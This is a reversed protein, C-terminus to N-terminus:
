HPLQPGTTIQLGERSDARAMVSVCQLKEINKMIGFYFRPWNYSDKPRGNTDSLTCEGMYERGIYLVTSVFFFFFTLVVCQMWSDLFFWLPFAVGRGGSGVWLTSRRRTTIASSGKVCSRHSVSPVLLFFPVPICLFYFFILFPFIPPYSFLLKIHYNVM